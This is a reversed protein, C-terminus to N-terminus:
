CPPHTELFAEVGEVDYFFDCGDDALPPITWGEPVKQNLYEHATTERVIRTPIDEFVESGALVPARRAAECTERSCLDGPKHAHDFAYIM